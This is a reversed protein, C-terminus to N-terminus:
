FSHYFLIYPTRKEDSNKSITEKMADEVEINQETVSKDNYCVFKDNLKNRCYCIFHGSSSSEGLHVIIGSLYFRINQEQNIIYFNSKDDAFTLVEPFTFKDKFDENNKGRNLVIILVKPLQYIKTRHSGEKLEKCTNCYIMNEATLKEEKMESEFAYYLDINKDQYGQDILEQKNEKVKKLAFTLMNFSQYSYRTKHCGECKMISENIGYFIEHMISYNKKKFDDMFYELSKKEDQSIEDQKSFNIKNNSVNVNQKLENHLREIIFFVLDKSDSAQNGEFLPNMQGILQKFQKPSIFKENSFKLEYLLHSFSYTLQQKNPNITNIFKLLENSLEEINALCQISSNMYCTQGLNELGKKHPYPINLNNTQNNNKNLNNNLSNNLNNNLSNNLNNNIMNNNMMM